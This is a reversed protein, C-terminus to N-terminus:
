SAKLIYVRGNIWNKGEKRLVVSQSDVFKFGDSAVDLIYNDSHAYRSSKLLSYGEDKQTEISFIFYSNKNCCKRVANFISTVDGIYVFVDLAVFLDYKEETLELKEVIDGVILNDYINLKKAINIMNESLDIGILNDSVESLDSGALGTGCGLDIVKQFKSNSNNLKIILEKIIFPLKYQLKEVLSDDFREAYDDFLNKVYEKPPSKSTNGLLSNLMHRPIAYDPKLILAREYFKIALDTKGQSAYCGGTMNFLLADDPSDKILAELAELADPVLGKSFFYIVSLIKNKNILAYEPKLTVVKKYGTVAADLLGLKHNALGLNYHAEVYEPKIFIAKEYFSIAADLEGLKACRKGRINYFKHKM